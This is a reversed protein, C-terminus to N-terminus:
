SQEVVPGSNQGSSPEEPVAFVKRPKLTRLDEVIVAIALLNQNRDIIAVEAGPKAPLRGPEITIARGTQIRITEEPTAMVRSMRTLTTLPSILHRSADLQDVDIANELTFKGVATRTLSSCYGGLGLASGVDRGLARIYTGSGCSIDIEVLPYEYRLLSISHITVRRPPINVDQGKRALKYARRGNVHVASYSPPKQLIDGVFRELTENVAAAPPAEARPSATIEGEVDDTTSTAGLTIVATYRKTQAQVYDALRTAGGACLVLVGSAFPDLTGAHGIKLKWGLLRRARTVINQSTPGVPKNVNFFGFM